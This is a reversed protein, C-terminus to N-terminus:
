VRRDAPVAYIHGSRDWVPAAADLWAGSEVQQCRYGAALLLAIVGDAHARKSEPTTGHIEVFLTPRARMLTERAGRLVEIEMGEVDVKIFTPPPLTQAQRDLTDVPVRISETKVEARYAAALEADGSTGGRQGQPIVFEKEGAEAGLATQRVEGHTFRNLALNGRIQSVSDTNPEFSIVRGRPGVARAFFLAYLGHHGGVDYVVQGTLNLDVLFQEEKTLPPASFALFGLGGRRKLGRAIGHKITYTSSSFLPGIVTSALKVARHLIM